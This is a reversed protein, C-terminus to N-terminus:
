VWKEEDILKEIFDLVQKKSGRKLDTLQKGQFGRLVLQKILYDKKSKGLAFISQVQTMENKAPKTVEFSEKPKSKPVAASSSSAAGPRASVSRPRGRSGRAEHQTEPEDDEKNPSKKPTEKKPSNKPTEKKPRPRKQQEIRDVEDKVVEVYDRKTSTAPSPEAKAKARSKAATAKAKAKAKPAPVPEITIEPERKVSRTESKVESKESKAESKADRSRSREVKTKTRSRGRTKLEEKVDAEHIEEKKARRANPKVDEKKMQTKVEKKVPEPKPEKTKADKKPPRGRRKPQPQDPESKVEEKMEEKIEEKIEEKKIEDKTKRPAREKTPADKKVPKTKRSSQEPEVDEPPITRRRDQDMEKEKAREKEMLDQAKHKINELGRATKDAMMQQKTRRKQKTMERAEMITQEHGPMPADGDDDDGAAMNFVEPTKPPDKAKVEKVGTGTDRAIEQIITEKRQEKNISEQQEQMSEFFGLGDLQTM